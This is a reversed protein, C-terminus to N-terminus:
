QKLKEAETLHYIYKIQQENLEELNNIIEMKYDLKNTNNKITIEGTGTLIWWSNVLLKEQLLVIENSKLEKVKGREIDQIRSLKLDTLDSLEKQTDIKLYERLTKFRDALM